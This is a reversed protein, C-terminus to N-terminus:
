LRIHSHKDLPIFESKTKKSDTLKKNVKINFYNDLSM